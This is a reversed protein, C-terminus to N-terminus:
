GVVRLEKAVSSFNRHGDETVLVLDEIRVGFREPVYVGPEVTVVDGAALEDESRPGLRPDEHVEIGVGHGVGHGFREGHGAAAIPERAAADVEVAAAGPRVAALAALQASLVLEYVDRAEDGLDGTAFTRTCDSSYGDVIAGMDIVVLEDSGIERESAEHHPLAGNPGSAVIAPFSPAEAGLERMRQEMELEVGRETRGALGADAV